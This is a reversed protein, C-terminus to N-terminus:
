GKGSFAQRLKCYYAIVCSGKDELSITFNVLEAGSIKRPSADGYELTYEAKSDINELVVMCEANEAKRRRFAVLVGRGSDPDDGQWVHWAKSDRAYGTLLYYDGAALIDRIRTGQECAWKLAQVYKGNFETQGFGYRQMSLQTASSIYSVRNYRDFLTEANACSCHFPIYNIINATINQMMEPLIQDDTLDDVAYVHCRSVAEFDLRRGGSACCDFRLHPFREKLHDWLRYLGAIYKAESVGIRDPADNIRWTKEAAATINFDERFCDVGSLVIQTSVTDFVWHWAAQDGLNILRSINQPDVPKFFYEPHEAYVPAKTVCREIDFWLLFRMSAPRAADSIRRFNGSPYLVPNVRWDGVNEYWHQWGGCPQSLDAKRPPGYWGADLWFTDAGIRNKRAFEVEELAIKEGLHGGNGLAVAGKYLTGDADRPSKHAVMFRRFDRKMMKVPQDNRFYVLVSPQRM